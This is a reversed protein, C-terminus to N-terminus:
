THKILTFFPSLFTMVLGASPPPPTVRCAWLGFSSTLFTLRMETNASAATHRPMHIDGGEDKRELPSRHRRYNDVVATLATLPARYVVLILISICEKRDKLM